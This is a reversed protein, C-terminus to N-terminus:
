GDKCDKSRGIWCSHLSLQNLNRFHTTLCSFINLHLESAAICCIASAIGVTGSVSELNNGSLYSAALGGVLLASPIAYLGFFDKPDEPRRFFELMKGTILFGGSINIFSLLTAIAGMWHAPSDPILGSSESNGHALLLMGGLATMGSIANTV